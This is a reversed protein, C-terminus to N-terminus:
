GRHYTATEAASPTEKLEIFNVHGTARASSSGVALTALCLDDQTDIYLSEFFTSSLPFRQADTLAAAASLQFEIDRFDDNIGTGRLKSFAEKLTWLRLISRISHPFKLKALHSQESGTLYTEKVSTSVRFNVSELDFGVDFTPSVAVGVLSKCHSLSFRIKSFPEALCLKGSEMRTFRWRGPEIKHKSARSLALRLLVRVAVAADRADGDNIAGLETRDDEDLVGLCSTSRLLAKPRATWVDITGSSMPTVGAHSPLAAFDKKWGPSFVPRSASRREVADTIKRSASAIKSAASVHRM